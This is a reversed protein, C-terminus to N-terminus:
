DTCTSKEIIVMTDVQCNSSFIVLPVMEQVSYHENLYAFPNASLRLTLTLVSVFRGGGKVRVVCPQVIANRPHQLAGM